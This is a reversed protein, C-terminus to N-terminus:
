SANEGGESEASKEASELEEQVEESVVYGCLVIGHEEFFTYLCTDIFNEFPMDARWKWLNIAAHQAMRMIPTFDMQFIRPVVRIETADSIFSTVIPKKGDGGARKAKTKSSSGDVGESEASEASEASEEKVLAQVREEQSREEWPAAVLEGTDADVKGLSKHVGKGDKQAERILHTGFTKKDPHRFGCKCAFEEMREKVARKVNLL